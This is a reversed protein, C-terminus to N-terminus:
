SECALAGAPGACGAAVVPMYSTHFNTGFTMPVSTGAPPTCGAIAVSSNTTCNPNVYFTRDEEIIWRYDSIVSTKDKGDLVTVSLNSATPFILTVTAAASSVTGQSNQANYNFTYTGPAGVSANFGGNADMTVTLGQSAAVTSTAISLPYGAADYDHCPATPTPTCASSWPTALVGAPKISLSGALTSTYTKPGVHIGSGPEITAANLSVLACAAGSTTGNGCYTFSTPAGTYTFTGDTNLTLGTPATGLVKVGFVNIDNALVGKGPDSVTLTVGTVVSYTDATATAGALASAAPLGASNIGIYALMGTDRAIGNGSLSLQRDFVPLATTVTAPANLMVDYTKGAAM